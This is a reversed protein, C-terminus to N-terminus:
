LHRRKRENGIPTEQTDWPGGKTEREPAGTLGGQPEEADAANAVAVVFVAAAVAAAAAAAALVRPHLPQM